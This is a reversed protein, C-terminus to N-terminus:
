FLSGARCGGIISKSSAGISYPHCRRLLSTLRQTPPRNWDIAFANIQAAAKGALRVAVGLSPSSDKLEPGPLSAAM